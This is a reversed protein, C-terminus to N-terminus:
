LKKGTDSWVTEKFSLDHSPKLNNVPVMDALITAACKCCGMVHPSVFIAVEATSQAPVAYLQQRGLIITKSQATGTMLHVSLTNNKHTNRCKKQNLSNRFSDVHPLSVAVM